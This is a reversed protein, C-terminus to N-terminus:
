NKFKFKSSYKQIFEALTDIFRIYDEKKNTAKEKFM